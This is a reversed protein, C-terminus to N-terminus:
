RNVSDDAREGKRQRAQAMQPGFDHLRNHEARTMVQLNEPRNDTFDENIHHVIEDDKLPRGIKQAAVLRYEYAHTGGMHTAHPDGPAYVLARGRGDDM